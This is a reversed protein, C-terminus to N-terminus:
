GGANEDNNKSIGIGRNNQNISYLLSSPTQIKMEPDIAAMPNYTLEEQRVAVKHRNLYYPIELEKPWYCTNISSVFLGIDEDGLVSCINRISTKIKKIEKNLEHGDIGSRSELREIALLVRRIKDPTCYMRKSDIIDSENLGSRLVENTVIERLSKADSILYDIGSRFSGYQGVAIYLAAIIAARVKLSGEELKVIIETEQRFLLDSYKSITTKFYHEVDVLDLDNYNIDFIFEMGSVVTM